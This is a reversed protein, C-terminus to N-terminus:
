ENQEGKFYHKLLVIAAVYMKIANIVQDVPVHENTGHIGM